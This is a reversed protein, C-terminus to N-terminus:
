VTLGGGQVFSKFHSIQFHAHKFFIFRRLDLTLRLLTRHPNRPAATAVRLM